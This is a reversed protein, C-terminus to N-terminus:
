FSGLGGSEEDFNRLSGLRDFRSVLAVANDLDPESPTTCLALEAFDRAGLILALHRSLGGAFRM